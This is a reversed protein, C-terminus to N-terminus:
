HELSHKLPMEFILVSNRYLVSRHELSNKAPPPVLAGAWERDGYLVLGIHANQRGASRGHLARPQAALVAARRQRSRPQTHLSQTYIDVLIYVYCM